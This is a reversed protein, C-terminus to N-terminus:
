MYICQCILIYFHHFGTFEQDADSHFLKEMEEETIAINDVCFLNDDNRDSESKDDSNVTATEDVDKWLIDEESGDM